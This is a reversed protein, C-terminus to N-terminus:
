LYMPYPDLLFLYLPFISSSQEQKDGKSNFISIRFHVRSMFHLTDFYFCGFLKVERKQHANGHFYFYSFTGNTKM